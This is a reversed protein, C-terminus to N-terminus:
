AAVEQKAQLGDLFDVAKQAAAAAKFIYSKDGKLAQLWGAIYQAHDPQPDTSVGLNTCLIASGIEAILEEFAYGHKNKLDLRDLRSKHGSWHVLEHLMTSYFCETATATATGTFQERTVMHIFNETPSFYCGGHSSFRIDAGTSAIFADVNALTVTQDVQDPLAPSVWGDVQDSSFVTAAKFWTGKVKDTTKDKIVMPVSIGIGKEGKRVQAGLEAWQKYTAVHAKGMLGLWFANLGRYKNGTLANTPTGALDAFPKTWNAGHIEILEIIKDTIEAQIDRRNTM